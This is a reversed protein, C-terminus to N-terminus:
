RFTSGHLYTLRLASNSDDDAMYLLGRELHPLLKELAMLSLNGYGPKLDVELMVEAQDPTMDWEAVAREIIADDDRENDLLVAVILTKQSEERDYWKKGLVKGAALLADIPVGLLKSRKGRELNFKVSELFGLAKRITDFTMEKTHHLKELLLQRQEDSLQEERHTDPDIYRLNNVEQLLRFRQYRRDSHQCRKQKPELECLGVVSKPWYMPRQFFLLGHLGFAQLPSEGKKRERPKCPFKQEGASGLKLDDTLLEPHYKAQANWIAEFEDEYQSRALHRRRIPDDEQRSTHYAKAKKGAKPAKDALWAGITDFGGEKRAQENENIEALMGTVESDGRDKKRNSLFGRRQNLHLLVRGIEHPELKEDLARVRLEYPDRGYLEAQAADDAPWLGATILAEILYRRRRVRRLVQRRMGRAIRRDENRSKEKGTDFADVGEPFVRVGLDVLQNNEPHDPDDKILAWGVSNPGLDLGLVLKPM